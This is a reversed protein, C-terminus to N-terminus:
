ASRSLHPHDRVWKSRNARNRDHLDELTAADAWYEIVERVLSARSGLRRAESESPLNVTMFPRQPARGAAHPKVPRRLIRTLLASMRAFLDSGEFSMRFFLTKRPRLARFSVSVDYGDELELGLGLAEDLAEVEPIRFDDHVASQAISTLKHSCSVNPESSAPRQGSQAFFLIYRQGM